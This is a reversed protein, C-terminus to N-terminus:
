PSPPLAWPQALLTYIVGKYDEPTCTKGDLACIVNNCGNNCITGLHRRDLPKERAQVAAAFALVCALVPATAIRTMTAKKTNM